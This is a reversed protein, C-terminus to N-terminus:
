PVKLAMPTLQCRVKLYTESEQKSGTGFFFTSTGLNKRVNKM